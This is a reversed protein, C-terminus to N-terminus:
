SLSLALFLSTFRLHIILFITLIAGFFLYFITLISVVVIKITQVINTHVIKNKKMKVSEIYLIIGKTKREEGDGKIRPNHDGSTSCSWELWYNSKM